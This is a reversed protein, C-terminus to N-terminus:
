FPRLFLMQRSEAGIIWCLAPASFNSSFVSLHSRGYPLLWTLEKYLMVHWGCFHLQFLLAVGPLTLHVKKGMHSFLHSIDWSFNRPIPHKWRQNQWSLYKCVRFERIFSCAQKAKKIKEIKKLCILFFDVMSVIKIYCIFFFRIEM